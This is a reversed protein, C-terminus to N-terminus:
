LGTQKRIYDRAKLAYLFPNAKQPDQEAEVVLWGKYSSNEIEKFLAPFDLIGDGPVTFVGDKVANLFSMKEDRCQERKGERVDKLHIHGIRPMYKKLAKLPDEFSFFFHGSDYNLSVYRDDTEQLLRDVEEMTQVGTGMHHHYCFTLGFEERIIKGLQNLGTTLRNWEETSFMPKGEWVSTDSKGQSSRGQEGGGMVSSGMAHLFRAHAMFAKKEEELSRTTFYPSHWANCVQLGRPELYSKLVRPDRPYLTGVECGTFGALAMESICQQFTNDRGLEPLDDNTWGIPAIGLQIDKKDAM